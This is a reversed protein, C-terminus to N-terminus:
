WGEEVLKQAAETLDGDEEFLYSRAVHKVHQNIEDIRESVDAGHGVPVHEEIASAVLRRFDDPPIADLEAAEGGGTKEPRTQIGWEAVQEATLAVHEVAVQCDFDESLSRVSSGEMARGARDYDHLWLIVHKDCHKDEGIARALDRLQSLSAMGRTSVVPTNLRHGVRYVAPFLADKEILVVPRPGDIWAWQPGALPPVSLEAVVNSRADDVIQSENRRDLAYSQARLEEIVEEPDLMRPVPPAGDYHVYRTRDEIASWAVRGERRLSSLDAVITRYGRESKDVIGRATCLYFAQRVTVVYQQEGILAVLADRRTDSRERQNPLELEARVAAVIARGVDRGGGADRMVVSDPLTPDTVLLRRIEARLAAQRDLGHAKRLRWIMRRISAEGVEVDPQEYLWQRALDSDAHGPAARLESLLEAKATKPLRTM